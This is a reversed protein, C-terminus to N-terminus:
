NLGGNTGVWISGDQDQAICTIQSSSLGSPHKLDFIHGELEFDKGKKVDDLLSSSIKYIGDKETGLWINRERDQTLVRAILDSSFNTTSLTTTDIIIYPNYSM